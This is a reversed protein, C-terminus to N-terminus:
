NTINSHSQRCLFTPRVNNLSGLDISNWLKREERSSPRIQFFGGWFYRTTWYTDYELLSSEPDCSKCDSVSMCVSVEVNNFVHAGIASFSLQYSFRIHLKYTSRIKIWKSATCQIYAPDFSFTHFTNCNKGFVSTSFPLTEPPFAISRPAIENAKVKAVLNQLHERKMENFNTLYQRFIM